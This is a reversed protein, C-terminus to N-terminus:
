DGQQSPIGRTKGDIQKLLQALDAPKITMSGGHMELVLPQEHVEQIAELRALRKALNEIGRM